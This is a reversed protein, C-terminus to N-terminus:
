AHKLSSKNCGHVVMKKGPFEQITNMRLKIYNQLPATCTMM